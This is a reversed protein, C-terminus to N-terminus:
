FDGKLVGLTKQSSNKLIDIELMHNFEKMETYNGHCKVHVNHKLENLLYKSINTIQTYLLKNYNGIKSM